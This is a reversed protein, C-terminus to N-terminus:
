RCASCSRSSIAPPTKRRSPPSNRARARSSATSMAKAARARSLRRGRDQGAPRPAHPRAPKGQFQRHGLAGARRHSFIQQGPAVYNGKEVNRKTIWGDQPAKVVTWSLQSRGSRAEGAGARGPGEVPRGAERDRRHAAAGAFEADGAGRGAGGAGPRSCRPRRPM